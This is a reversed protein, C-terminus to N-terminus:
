SASSILRERDRQRRRPCPPRRATARRCRPTVVSPRGRGARRPSRARAPGHRRRGSAHTPTQMSVSARMLFALKSIALATICVVPWANQYREPRRGARAPVAAGSATAICRSLHPAHGRLRQPFGRCPSRQPHLLVEPDHRAADAEHDAAARERGPVAVRPQERAERGAVRHDHLRVGGRDQREAIVTFITRSTSASAPKSGFTTVSTARPPSQRRASARAADRTRIMSKM